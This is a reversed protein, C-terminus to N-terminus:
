GVQAGKVREVGVVAHPTRHLICGDNFPHRSLPSRGLHFCVKLIHTWCVEDLAPVKKKWLHNKSKDHEEDCRPSGADDRDVIEVVVLAGRSLKQQDNSAKGVNNENGQRRSDQCDAVSAQPSEEFRQKGASRFHLVPFRM